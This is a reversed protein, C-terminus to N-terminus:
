NADRKLFLYWAVLWGIVIYILVTTIAKTYSIHNEQSYVDMLSNLSSFPLYIQNKKLLLGLINEVMAPILFLAVIAGVQVRIIFAIITAFMAFAWGYFAARWALNWVYINQHGLPVNHLHAGLAALLPSLAGFFLAFLVAFCSIAFVKSIFVSTRSRNSTLTHMITNYRYEHTILLVAVIAGLLMLINLASTLQSSLFFPNRTPQMYYARWGNIYFAFLMELLFALGIFIYTSRVTLLKLFEAKISAIM